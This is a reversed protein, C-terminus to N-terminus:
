EILGEISLKRQLGKNIRKLMGHAWARAGGKSYFAQGEFAARRLEDAGLQLLRRRWKPLTIPESANVQLYVLGELLNEKVMGGRSLEVILPFTEALQVPRAKMLKHLIGICKIGNARNSSTIVLENEDILNQVQRAIKDGALLAAKHSDQTLIAKRNKNARLFAAAEDPQGQSEFVICPLQDIDSRYRAAVTRHMGDVAFFSGERSAIVICGFAVWSWNSAMERCKAANLERQYAPDFRICSKDLWRLKGPADHKIWGYRDIKSHHGHHVHETPTYDSAALDPM